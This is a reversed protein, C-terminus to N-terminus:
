IDKKNVKKALIEVNNPDNKIKILFFVSLIIIHENANAAPTIIVTDIM